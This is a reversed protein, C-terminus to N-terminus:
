ESYEGNLYDPTTRAWVEWHYHININNCYPICDQIYILPSIRAM